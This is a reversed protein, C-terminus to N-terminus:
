PNKQGRAMRDKGHIDQKLECHVLGQDAMVQLTQPGLAENIEFYLWGNPALLTASLEAIRRYFLLPEDDSVFLALRPEHELVRALMLERESERVYPPNSVILEFPGAPAQDQLIDRHHTKIKLQNLEANSACLALAEQSVDLAHVESDPFHKALALAICGTGTGIDLISRPTNPGETIWQILEETEPRPILAAPACQIHLGCFETHGIVYQIPQGAKLSKIAGLMKLIESETLRADDALLIDTSPRSLLETVLLRFSPRLEADPYGSKRLAQEFFTKMSSLRNDQVQM